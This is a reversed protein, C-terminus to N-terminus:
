LEQKVRDWVETVDLPKFGSQGFNERCLDYIARNYPVLVGHKDALDLIYGNLSELESETGGRQLIDQSMSSRVMKSVNKRFTGRVLFGPLKAGARMTSWSPMGGLRCERYGAAKVVQVGEYLMNTLLKRFIEFDSIERFGHGVLTTLSNTLNVIIKCHVADELHDTVVTEVGRNFEAAVQRMEAQLSNDPTGLILPGKKQYGVCVPYDMWANYSIVCYIVRSFFKPLIKQNEAGNAMSIIVANDGAHEKILGAVKELSYNKVGIVIYDASKLESLDEMVNVPVMAMTEDKRDGEYLTIGKTKLAESIQGQDVFWTDPNHPAVWGGVSAGIAGAGFFVIRSM